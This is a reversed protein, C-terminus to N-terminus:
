AAPDSGTPKPIAVSNQLQSNRLAIALRISTITMLTAGGIGAGIFTIRPTTLTLVTSGAALALVSATQSLGGLAAFVKGRDHDPTHTVLLAGFTANGIGYGASLLVLMGAYPWYSPSLGAGVLSVAASGFGIAAMRSRTSTARIRGAILSGVIAGAGSFFESLGFQFSSAGLTDRVLFVEVPNIGEVLVVFILITIFLPWVLPDRATAKIAGRWSTRVAEEIQGTHRRTQVALVAVALLLYTAGDGWFGWRIQGLGVLLGGVAFGIPQGIANLGRQWAIASGIRDDGVVRPILASWTPQAFTQALSIVATMAYMTIPTPWAGLIVCAAGQALSASVLITRSDLRDAIRGAIGMTLIGPVSFCAILAAVGYPGLGRNHILLMTAATTLGTGATSLTRAPLVIRMDHIAWVSEHFSRKM